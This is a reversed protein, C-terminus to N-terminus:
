IMEEAKRRAAADAAFLDAMTTIRTNEVQQMAVDIIETIRGFPIKRGLFAAVAIENAANMITPMAGGATLAARTLGLAPFRDADPSEFSLSKIEAFNLSKIQTAIRHPYGLCYSIPVTMDPPGLQALVSGDMYEVMSHIVSQPHILIEIQEPPMTFLYHAEMLELGKNMLTASDITIKEGMNWNPHKLAQEPTANYIEAKLKERFPGGSATIIIKKVQDRNHNELVQFIANHESDVPLIKAGSKEVAHLMWPGACVLAEKNALAVTRGQEIAALTPALGAIGVIAAVCIDADYKAVEMVGSEGVLIETKVIGIESKLNQYEAEDAIAVLEPQFERVVAALVAVNKQAALATIKFKDRHQRVVALTQQGISGTAGLISIKKMASNNVLAAATGCM